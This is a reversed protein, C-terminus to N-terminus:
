SGLQGWVTSVGVCVGVRKQQMVRPFDNGPVGNGELQPPLVRNHGSLRYRRGKMGM